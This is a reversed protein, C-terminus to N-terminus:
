RMCSITDEIGGLEQMARYYGEGRQKGKRRRKMLEELPEYGYNRQTSPYQQRYMDRYKNTFPAPNIYRSPNMPFNFRPVQYNINERMDIREQSRNLEPTRNRYREPTHFTNLRPLDKNFYMPPLSNDRRIGRNRDFQKFPM